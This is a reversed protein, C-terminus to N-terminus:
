EQENKSVKGVGFMKKEEIEVHECKKGKELL